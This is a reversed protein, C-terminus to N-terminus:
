CGRAVSALGPGKGVKGGGGPRAEAGPPPPAGEEMSAM